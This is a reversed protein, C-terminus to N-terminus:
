VRVSMIEEFCSLFSSFNLGNSWLSAEFFFNHCIKSMKGTRPFIVWIHAHIHKNRLQADAEADADGEEWGLTDLTCTGLIRGCGEHGCWEAGEEEEEEEEVYWIATLFCKALTCIGWHLSHSSLFMSQNLWAELNDSIKFQWHPWDLTWGTSLRWSIM